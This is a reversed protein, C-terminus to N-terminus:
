QLNQSNAILVHLQIDLGDEQGHSELQDLRLYTHGLLKNFQEQKSLM